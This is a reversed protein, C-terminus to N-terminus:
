AASAVHEIALAGAVPISRQVAGTSPDLVDVHDAFAAYVSAGDASTALATVPATTPWRDRVELTATDLAVVADGTGVYLTAGDPSV